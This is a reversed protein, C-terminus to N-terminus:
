KRTREVPQMDALSRQLRAWRRQATMQVEPTGQTTDYAQGLYPRVQTKGQALALIALQSRCAVDESLEASAAPWRGALLYSEGASVEAQAQRLYYLRVQPLTAPLLPLLFAADRQKDYFRNLGSIVAAAEAGGRLRLWLRANAAFYRNTQLGQEVLALAETDRGRWHAITALEWCVNPLLGGMESDTVATSDQRHELFAAYRVLSAQLQQEAQQYDGRRWADYGALVLFDPVLPYAQEAQAVVAAVEEAPRDLLTLAQIWLAYARTERGVAQEAQKTAREAHQATQAYDGLTYYCDALYADDLPQAGERERRALLIRLNREAKRRIIHSSYGTHWVTVAALLQMQKQGRGPGEYILAEHVAGHYRLTPLNRCIRLSWGESKARNHNDTDINVLHLVFGIIDPRREYDHLAQRLAPFDQPQIYEDADLLLLWHGRAQTLAFNKAAAFDDQWQYSFVRAGAAKALAVTNDTSGTDVVVMEDALERMCALWRPLAEAENKVIVCASIEIKAM